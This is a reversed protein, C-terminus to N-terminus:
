MDLENVCYLHRQEALLYSPIKPASFFHVVRLLLFTPFTKSLNRSSKVRIWIKHAFSFHSNSFNLSFPKLNCHLYDSAAPM